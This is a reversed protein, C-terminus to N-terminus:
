YNTSFGPFFLYNSVNIAHPVPCRKKLSSRPEFYSLVSRVKSYEEKLVGQSYRRLSTFLSNQLCLVLLVVLRTSNMYGKMAAFTRAASSMNKKSHEDDDDIINDEKITENVSDVSFSRNLHDKTESSLLQSELSPSRRIM